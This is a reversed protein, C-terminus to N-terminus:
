TDHTLEKNLQMLIRDQSSLANILLTPALSIKSPRATLHGTFEDGCIQEM